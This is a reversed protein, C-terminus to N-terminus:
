SVIHTIVMNKGLQMTPPALAGITKEKILNRGMAEEPASHLHGTQKAKTEKEKKACEM